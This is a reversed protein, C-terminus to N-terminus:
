KKKTFSDEHLLFAFLSELCFSKKDLTLLNTRLMHEGNTDQNRTKIANTSREAQQTINYGAPDVTCVVVDPVCGYITRTM